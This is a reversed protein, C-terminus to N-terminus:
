DRMLPIMTSLFVPSLGIVILATVGLGGLPQFISGVGIIVLFALFLSIVAWAPNRKVRRVTPMALTVYNKYSFMLYVVVFISTLIINM